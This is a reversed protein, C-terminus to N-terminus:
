ITVTADSADSHAGSSVDSQAHEHREGDAVTPEFHVANDPWVGAARGLQRGGTGADDGADAKM